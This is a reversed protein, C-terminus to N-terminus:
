RGSTEHFKGPSWHHARSGDKMGSCVRLLTGDRSLDDILSRKCLLYGIFLRSKFSIGIILRGIFLSRIHELIVRAVSCQVSTIKGLRPVKRPLPPRVFVDLVRAERPARGGFRCGGAVFVITAAALCLVGVGDRMKWVPFSEGVGSVRGRVRRSIDDDGVAYVPLNRGM